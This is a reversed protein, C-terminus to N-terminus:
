FHTRPRAFINTVQLWCALPRDGMSEPRALGLRVITPETSDFELACNEAHHEKCQPCSSRHVDVSLDKLPVMTWRFGRSDTFDVRGGSREQKSYAHLRRVSVTALSREGQEPKWAASGGTGQIWRPGFAEEVFSFARQSLFRVVNEYKPRGIITVTAPDWVGDENHPAVAKDDRRWDVTLRVGQAIGLERVLTQTPQPVNLRVCERSAVNIAGVCVNEGYMATVETVLIDVIM